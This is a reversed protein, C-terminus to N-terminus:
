IAWGQRYPPNLYQNAENSNTFREGNWELKQGLLKIAILGLLALETLAGGYDFNSGAPKGAKIAAFWDEMHDKVRPLTKPPREFAQMRADPILRVQGAGHSGHVITGKDGMVIAGTRPPKDDAEL